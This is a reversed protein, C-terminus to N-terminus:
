SVKSVRRAAQFNKVDSIASHNATAIDSDTKEM